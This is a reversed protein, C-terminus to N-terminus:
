NETPKNLHDIVITHLEGRGSRLTLGIEHLSTIISPVLDDNQSPNSYKYQFDFSGALGTRDMIPRQLYRSLRICLLPMSINMGAIGDGNIMGGLNGGVWPPESPDKTSHLQLPGGGKTLIYVSGAKEIMHFKLGFREALLSQLMQRQEETLPAKASDVVLRRSQSTDPVTADLDFMESQFWAPGGTIQFSQVDFAFMLLMQATCFGCHIRGGSYTYIGLLGSGNPNSPKISAVEFAPLARETEGSSNQGAMSTDPSSFLMWTAFALRFVSHSLM